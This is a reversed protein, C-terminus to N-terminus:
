RATPTVRWRLQRIRKQKASRGSSTSQSVEPLQSWANPCGGSTARSTPSYLQRRAGPMRRSVTFATMFLVSDLMPLVRMMMCAESATPTALTSSLKRRMGRSPKTPAGIVAVAQSTTCAKMTHRRARQSASKRLHQPPKVRSAQLDQGGKRRSEHGARASRPMSHHVQSRCLRSAPKMEGSASAVCATTGWSVSRCYQTPWASPVAALVTMPLRRPLPRMAAARRAAKRTISRQRPVIDSWARTKRARRSRNGWAKVRSGAIRRAMASIMGSVSAKLKRSLWWAASEPM